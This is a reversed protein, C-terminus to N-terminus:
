KSRAKLMADAYDYAQLAPLPSGLGDGHTKAVIGVLAFAAFLDRLTVDSVSCTDNFNPSLLYPNLPKTTNM